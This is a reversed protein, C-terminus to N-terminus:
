CKESYSIVLLVFIQTGLVIVLKIGWQYNLQKKGLFYPQLQLYDCSPIRWLEEIRYLERGIEM